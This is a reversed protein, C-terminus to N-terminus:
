GKLAEAIMPALSVKNSPHPVGDCSIVSKIGAQRLAKDAKSDFLAHVGAAEVSAAGRGFAEKAAKIITMGSSVVDDVIIVPRGKFKGDELSVKVQRDGHRKKIATTWELGLAGAFPKATHWAEEDPGLVLTDKAFGKKKYYAALALGGSLVVGKILPFVSEMSHSRHLHPEVTILADVWPSIVEAFVKQSLAQGERFVKDQRMYPLYPAVLTIKRAGNGRLASAAQIVEFIKPNPHHLSRYLIAQKAKLPLTALTEGDPFTHIGVLGFPVGLEGALAKAEARCEPFGLVAKKHKPLAM